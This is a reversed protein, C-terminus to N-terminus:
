VVKKEALEERVKANRRTLVVELEHVNGITDEWGSPDLLLREQAPAFGGDEARCFTALCEMDPPIRRAPTPIWGTGPPTEVYDEVRAFRVVFLDVARKHGMAKLSARSFARKDGRCTVILQPCGCERKSRVLADFATLLPSLDLSSWHTHNHIETKASPQSPRSDAM